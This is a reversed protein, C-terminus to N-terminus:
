LQGTKAGRARSQGMWGGSGSVNRVGDDKGMPGIYTNRSEVRGRREWM